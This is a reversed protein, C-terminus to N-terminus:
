EGAGHSHNNVHLVRWVGCRWTLRVPPTVDPHGPHLGLETLTWVGPNTFTATLETLRAVCTDLQLARRQAEDSFCQFPTLLTGCLQSLTTDECSPGAVEGDDVM